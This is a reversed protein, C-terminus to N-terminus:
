KVGENDHDRLRIAQARFLISYHNAIRTLQRGPLGEYHLWAEESHSHLGEHVGGKYVWDLGYNDVTVLTGDSLVERVVNIIGDAGVRAAQRRLETFLASEYEAVFRPDVVEASAYVLAIVDFAREPAELFVEISHPESQSQERENGKLLVVSGRTQIGISCGVVYVIILLGSLYKLLM